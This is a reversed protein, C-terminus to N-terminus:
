KVPEGVGSGKILGYEIEYFGGGRDPFTLYYHVLRKGEAEEIQRLLEAQASASHGALVWRRTEDSMKWSRAPVAQPPVTVTEDKPDFFAIVNRTETEARNKERNQWFAIIAVLLAIAMEIIQSLQPDM